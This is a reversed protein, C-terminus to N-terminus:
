WTIDYWWRLSVALPPIFVEVKGNALDENNVAKIQGSMAQIGLNPRDM